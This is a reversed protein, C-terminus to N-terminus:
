HRRQLGNKVGQANIYNKSELRNPKKHYQRKLQQKLRKNKVQEKPSVEVKEDSKVDTEIVQEPENVAEVDDNVPTNENVGPIVDLVKIKRM